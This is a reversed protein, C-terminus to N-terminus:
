EGTFWYFLSVGIVAYLAVSLLISPLANVFLALRTPAIGSKVDYIRM